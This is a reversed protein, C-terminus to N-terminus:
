KEEKETSPNITKARQSNIKITGLPKQSIEMRVDEAGNEVTTVMSSSYGVGLKLGPRDSISIGLSQTNSVVAAKDEPDNVTVVGFGIIVHHSTGNKEKIKIGSCVGYLM